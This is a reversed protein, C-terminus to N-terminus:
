RCLWELLWWWATGAVSVLAVVAVKSAAIVNVTGSGSGGTGLGAELLV